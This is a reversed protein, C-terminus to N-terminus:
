FTRASEPTAVLKAAEQNAVTLAGSMAEGLALRAALTGVFTDGAGHTSAVTVKLGPCLRASVM